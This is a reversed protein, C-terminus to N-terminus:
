KLKWVGGEEVIEVIRKEDLSRRGAEMIAGTAITNKLTPLGIEDLKDLTTRGEKLAAVADVFKEFSVYGYGTQGAFDGEPSPAYRM